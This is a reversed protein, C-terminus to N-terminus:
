SRAPVAGPRIPIAPSEGRCVKLAVERKLRSDTARYVEGMGGEGLKSLVTYPGLQDGSKM